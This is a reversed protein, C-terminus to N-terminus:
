LAHRPVGGRYRHRLDFRIRELRAGAERRFGYQFQGLADLLQADDLRHRDALQTVVAVLEDAALATEPSRLHGAKFHDRCIDADGVVLAHQLHRQHLVDLALFEIGDLHRDAKLPQQIFHVQRLFCQALFDALVARGDRVVQAQQLKWGLDLQTKALPLDAHAM